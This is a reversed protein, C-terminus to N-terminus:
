AHRLVHPPGTTFLARALQHDMFIVDQEIVRGGVEHSHQTDKM